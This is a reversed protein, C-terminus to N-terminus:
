NARNDMTNCRFNGSRKDGKNKSSFSNNLHLRRGFSLQADYQHSIIMVEIKRLLVGHIYSLKLIFFKITFIIFVDVNIEINVLSCRVNIVLHHKAKSM